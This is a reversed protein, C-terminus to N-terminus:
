TVRKAQKIAQARKNQKFMPRSGNPRSSCNSSDLSTWSMYNSETGAMQALLIAAPIFNARM